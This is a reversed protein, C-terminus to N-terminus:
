IDLKIKGATYPNVTSCLGNILQRSNPINTTEDNVTVPTTAAPTSCDANAIVGCQSVCIWAALALSVLTMPRVAYLLVLRNAFNGLGLGSNSHSSNLKRTSM